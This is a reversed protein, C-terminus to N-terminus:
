MSTRQQTMPWMSGSSGPESNLCRISSSANKTSSEAPLTASGYGSCSGTFQHRVEIQLPRRLLPRPRVGFFPLLAIEVLLAVAPTFPDVTAVLPLSFLLAAGVKAVPNRRALPAAADAIPEISLTM